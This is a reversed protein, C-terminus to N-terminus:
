STPGNTQHKIRQTEKLYAVKFDREFLQQAWKEKSVAQNEYYNTYLGWLRGADFIGLAPQGELLQTKLRTPEFESLAGQVAARAAAGSALDHTRLATLIEALAAKPSTFGISSARGALLYQLKSELSWNMNLPNNERKGLSPREISRVERRLDAKDAHLALLGELAQRVVQGATEIEDVTLTGVRESEIGLGKFFAALDSDMGAPVGPKSLASFGLAKGMADTQFAWDAFPDEESNVKISQTRSTLPVTPSVSNQFDPLAVITVDHAFSQARQPPLTALEVSIRFDGLLLTQDHPLVARAGPPVEGGPLDVGNVESLVRFWLDGDLNWVSLHRRSVTKEHDPLCVDCGSDRGLVLEACGDELRTTHSFDPGEIHLELVPM